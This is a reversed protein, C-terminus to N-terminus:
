RNAFNLSLSSKGDLSWKVTGVAERHWKLLRPPLVTQGNSKIEREEQRHLIDEYIYIDGQVGGYVLDYMKANFVNSRDLKHDAPRLRVKADLCTLLENSQQLRWIYRNAFLLPDTDVPANVLESKVNAMTVEQATAAFIVNGEDIVKLFLLDQKRSFLPVHTAVPKNKDGTLIQRAVIHDKKMDDSIQQTEITFLTDHLTGSLQTVVLTRIPWKRPVAHIAKGEQWDWLTISGATDAIYLRGPNTISLAYASVMGPSKAALTRVLVSTSTSYVHVARKTGLFVFRSSEILKVAYVSETIL